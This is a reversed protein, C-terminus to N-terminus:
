QNNIKKEPNQLLTMQSEQLRHWELSDDAERQELQSVQKEAKADRPNGDSTNQKRQKDHEQDRHPLVNKGFEEFADMQSIKIGGIVLFRRSQLIRELYNM